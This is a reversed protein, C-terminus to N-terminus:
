EVSFNRFEQIFARAAYDTILNLTSGAPVVIVTTSDVNDRFEEWTM